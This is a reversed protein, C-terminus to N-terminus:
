PCRRLLQHAALIFAKEIRVPSTEIKGEALNGKDPRGVGGFRNTSRFMRRSAASLETIALRVV